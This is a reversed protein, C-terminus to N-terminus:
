IRTGGQPDRPGLGVQSVTSAEHPGDIRHYGQFGMKGQEGVGNEGLPGGTGQFGPCGRHGRKGRRSGDNNTSSHHQTPLPIRSIRNTNHCDYVIYVAALAYLFAVEFM